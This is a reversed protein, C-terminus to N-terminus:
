LYLNIIKSTHLAHGLCVSDCAYFKVGICRDILVVGNDIKKQCHYCEHIENNFTKYQGNNYKQLLKNYEKLIKLRGKYAETLSLIIVSLWLMLIVIGAIIFLITM